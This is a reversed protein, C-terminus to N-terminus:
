LKRVLRRAGDSIFALAVGTAAHAMVRKAPGYVLRPSILGTTAVAGAVMDVILAEPEKQSWATINRMRLGDKRIKAYIDKASFGSTNRHGYIFTIWQNVTAPQVGFWTLTLRSAKIVVWIIIVIEVSGTIVHMIRSRLWTQQWLGYLQMVAGKSRTSGVSRSRGSGVSRSTYQAQKTPSDQQQQQQHHPSASVAADQRTTEPVDANLFQVQRKKKLREKGDRKSTRLIGQLPQTSITPTSPMSSWVSSLAGSRWHPQSSFSADSDDSDTALGHFRGELELTLRHCSNRYRDHQEEHKQKWYIRSVDDKASYFSTPSLSALQHADLADDQIKVVNLLTLSKKPSPRRALDHEPRNGDQTRDILMSVSMTRHEDLPLPTKNKATSSAADHGAISSLASTDNVPSTSGEGITSSSDQKAEPNKQLALQAEDILTQLAVCIRNYMINSDEDTATDRKQDSTSSGDINSKEANRLTEEADALLTMLEDVIRRNSHEAVNLRSELEHVTARTDKVESQLTQVLGELVDGEPGDDTMFVLTTSDALTSSSHNLPSDMGLRSWATGQSDTEEDDDGETQDDQPDDDHDKQQRQHQQQQLQQLLLQSQYLVKKHDQFFDDFSQTEAATLPFSDPPDIIFMDHKQQQQRQHQHQWPNLVHQAEM